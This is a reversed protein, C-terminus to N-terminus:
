CHAFASFIYNRICIGVSGCRGLVRISSTLDKKQSISIVKGSLLAGSEIRGSFLEGHVPDYVVASHPKGRDYFAVGLCFLSIGHVLNATGDVPDVFWLPVSKWDARSIRGKMEVSCIEHGSFYKRITSMIIEESVKDADTVLERESKYDARSSKRYRRRITACAKLAANEMAELVKM